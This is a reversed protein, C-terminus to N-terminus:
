RKSWKAKQTLSKILDVTKQKRNYGSLAASRSVVYNEGDTTVGGSDVSFDTSFGSRGFRHSVSNILGLSTAETDGTYYVSAIDGPIIQPRLPGTFDEGIGVYQLDRACQEAYTQLEAQTYGDPAEIHCTKHAGPLWYSYNSVAVYVPTLDAGTDDKGTVRVRSYAADLSKATKRKFVESGANFEYHSNYQYQAMYPPYGIVISGDPLEAMMWGIYYEMLQRLGSLLTQNPEFKHTTSHTATQLHCDTVGGLALIAAAVEHAYGTISTTEDFTQDNLRGMTNRASLPVTKSKLNFTVEDLWCTAMPYIESDGLRFGLTIKAGPNFLTGTDSFVESSVNMVDAAMESIPDDSQMEYTGNEVIDSLDMAYVYRLYVLSTGDTASFYLVGNSPHDVTLLTYATSDIIIESGYVAEDWHGDDVKTAQTAIGNHLYLAQGAEDYYHVNGGLGAVAGVSRYSDWVLPAPTAPM